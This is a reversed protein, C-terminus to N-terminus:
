DPPAKSGRFRAAAKETLTRPKSSRQPEALRSSFRAPATTISGRVTSKDVGLQATELQRPAAAAVPRRATTSAVGPRELATPSLRYIATRPGAPDVDLLRLSQAFRSTATDEQRRMDLTLSTQARTQLEFGAAPESRTSSSNNGRRNIGFAYTTTRELLFTPM